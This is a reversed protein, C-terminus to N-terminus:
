TRGWKPGDRLLARIVFHFLSKQTAIFGTKPRLEAQKAVRFLGFQLDVRNKVSMLLVTYYFGDTVKCFALSLRSKDYM